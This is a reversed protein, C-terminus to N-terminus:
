VKAIACPVDSVTAFGLVSTCTATHLRRTWLLISKRLKKRKRKQRRPKGRFGLGRFMMYPVPSGLACGTKRQISTCLKPKQTRAGFLRAESSSFLRMM